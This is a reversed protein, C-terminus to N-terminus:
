QLVTTLENLTKTKSELNEQTLRAQNKSVIGSHHGDLVKTEDCTADLERITM